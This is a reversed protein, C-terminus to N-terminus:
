PQQLADERRALTRQLFEAAREFARASAPLVGAM